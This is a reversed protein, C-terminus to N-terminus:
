LHLFTIRKWKKLPAINIRAGSVSTIKDDHTHVSGPFEDLQQLFLKNWVGYVIYMDGAAADGFWINALIVRDETPRYGTCGPHGPIQKKLELDIAAVQNKGGAGPEQEVIVKIKNGDKRAVTVIFKILEEWKVFASDQDEIYFKHPIKIFSMLTGVTEDPDNKKKKGSVKEETAALDWYRIRKDVKEPPVAVVKDKFWASDGLTGSEEVFLGLIEQKRLWGSPYAALMSAYFGPDLNDKNKEITGYFCEVLERNLGELAFAEIADEPLDQDIFFKKVWPAKTNPTGTAWAQPMYGVRVSATAIQWAEGSEDRSVEDYWLWNINPGRASDPEKLGKCIVRAGNTFAMVFPQYPQWQISRRYRHAPVVNDWPIWEKFEPWTSIRFNEFDPNLIAGSQGQQIKLISKQAGTASKGCGRSGYFLSFRALSHIFDIQEQYPKYHAGDARVFYGNEDPFWRATTKDLLEPPLKLGRIRMENLLAALRKKDGDPISRTAQLFGVNRRDALPM